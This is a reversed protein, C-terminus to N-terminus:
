QNEIMNESQNQPQNDKAFHVVQQPFPIDINLQRFRTIIETLIDTLIRNKVNVNSTYCCLKFDLSSAGLGMFIVFPEPSKLTDKTEKAIDVLTQKVLEVDSDYSVGVPIDIRANKDQYTLNILSNSLLDANPIIISAKNFTELHTSRMCIKVVIGEMDNIVVWDGIKIPREFLLIIGSVFNNVVNQLGLGAGFSLAGAVIALGKFSGGMVSIAMFIAMLIGVFGLGSVLSNRVGEDMEIKNLSGHMLSNKLFRIFSMTIFFAMIGLIMSTISIHMDGIYFGTLFKNISRLMVNIPLGWIALTFFVTLMHAFSNTIVNFWFEIKKIKKKSIHLSKIWFKLDMVKKFLLMMCKQAVIFAGVCLLSLFIRNFIYASLKTYGFLSFSFVCVAFVSIVLSIKSSLSLENIEDGDAEEDTLSTNDYLFRYSLLMMCFAKVGNNIMQLIYIVNDGYSLKQGLVQLFSSFAMMIFVFILTSYIGSVKNSKIHILRWQPCKPAFLVSVVACYLLVALLYFAAVKLFIGFPGAFLIDHNDLWVMFAGLLIAPAVGKAIFVFFGAVLKQAYAPRKIDSKYGYKTRIFWSLALSVVLFVALWVFLTYIQQGIVSIQQANLSTIWVAPNAIIDTLFGSFAILSHWVFSVNLVSPQKDMITNILRQNRQQLVLQHIEDINTMALDITAITKKHTNIKDIFTARQDALEIDESEGEIPAPGLAQMQKDVSLLSANEDSRWKLLQQSYNSLKDVGLAQQGKDGALVVNKKIEVIHTAIHSLDDGEQGMVPSGMIMLCGVVLM